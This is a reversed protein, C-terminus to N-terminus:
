KERRPLGSRIKGLQYLAWTGLMFAVTATPLRWSADHHQAVRTAMEGMIALTLLSYSGMIAFVHRGYSYVGSHFFGRWYKWGVFSAFGVNFAGLSIVIIQWARLWTQANDLHTM